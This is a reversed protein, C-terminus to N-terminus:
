AAGELPLRVTKLWYDTLARLAESIEALRAPKTVFGAVGLDYSTNIDVEAASVTLVVVPIGRLAPDAKLIRLLARGDMGPMNLDLLILGPRLKPGSVGHLLDLAEQGGPATELRLGPESELLLETILIRDDPDDEVLLVTFDRSRM